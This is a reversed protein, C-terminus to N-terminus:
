IHILSLKLLQATIPGTGAGLEVICEAAAYDIGAVIKRSLFRQSPSFSAVSTGHKMFKKTMLWWDPTAAKPAATRTPNM